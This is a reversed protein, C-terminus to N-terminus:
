RRGPGEFVAHDSWGHERLSEAKTAFTRMAREVRHWDLYRVSVVIRSDEEEAVDWGGPQHRTITFKKTHVSKRLLRIYM